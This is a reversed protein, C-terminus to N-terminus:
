DDQVIVLKKDKSGDAKLNKLVYKSIGQQKAYAAAAQETRFTKPRPKRNRGRKIVEERWHSIGM